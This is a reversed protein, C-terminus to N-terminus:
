GSRTIPRDLRFYVSDCWGIHTHWTRAARGTERFGLKTLLRISGANRPDIDATLYDIDPRAFAHTLFATVAETALGAGWHDPHLIYGFDPLRWAGVKGIAQGGREIVFDESLSPPSEIMGTLWERTQEINEHPPTSWYRMAEANSLVAHIADLDSAQARRLLLRPTRIETM